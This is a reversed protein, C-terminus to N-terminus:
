KSPEPQSFGSLIFNKWSEGLPLCLDVRLLIKSKVQKFNGKTAYECDLLDYFVPITDKRLETEPILTMELFPGVMGAFLFFTKPKNSIDM